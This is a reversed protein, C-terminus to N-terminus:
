PPKICSRSPASTPLSPGATTASSITTKADRMLAGTQDEQWHTGHWRLWKGWPHCYRLDQGHLRVLALANTYDSYPLSTVSAEPDETDEDGSPASRRKRSELAKAMTMQRYTQSGHREDWKPRRLGSLRMLADCQEATAVCRVALTCFALDAESQSPYTGHWQGAFLPSFRDGNRALAKALVEAGQVLWDLLQQLDALTTSTGPVQQGTMTFFRGRDYCEVAGRKHGQGLTGRGLLHVGTGNPSVETYTQFVGRLHAAWAQMTGTTDIVHDLDIGCYPDEATFVFGLGGGRYHEPDEAQWDELAVPLAAVSYAYTTWTHPDTSSAKRLTRSDIPIKNLREVGGRVLPQGRWLVWQPLALLEAPFTTM